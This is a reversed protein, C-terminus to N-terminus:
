GLNFTLDGSNGAMDAVGVISIATGLVADTGLNVLLSNGQALAVTAGEGLSGPVLGESGNLGQVNIVLEGELSLAGDGDKDLAEWDIDESFQFSLMDDVRIVSIAGPAEVDAELEPQGAVAEKFAALAKTASQAKTTVLSLAVTKESLLSTAGLGATEGAADMDESVSQRLALVKADSGKAKIAMLMPLMDEDASSWKSIEKATAPRGFLAQATASIMASKSDALHLVQYEMTSTLVSVLGDIRGDVALVADVWFDREDDNPVKLTYAFFAKDIAQEVKIQLKALAAAKGAEAKDTKAQKEAQIETWKDNRAAEAAQLLAAHRASILSQISM